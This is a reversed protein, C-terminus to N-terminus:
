AAKAADEADRAALEAPTMPFSLVRQVAQVGAAVSYLRASRGDDDVGLVLVYEIGDLVVIQDLCWIWADADLDEPHMLAYLLGEAVTASRRGLRKLKALVSTCSGVLKEELRAGELSPEAVTPCNANTLHSNVYAFETETQLAVVLREIIGVIPAKQALLALLRAYQARGFDSTDASLATVLDLVTSLEM